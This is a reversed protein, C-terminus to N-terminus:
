VGVSSGVRKTSGRDAGIWRSSVPKLLAAVRRGGSSSIPRRLMVGEREGRVGTGTARPTASTAMAPALPGAPLLCV